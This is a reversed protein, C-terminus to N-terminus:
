GHVFLMLPRGPEGCRAYHLKVDDLQLFGHVISM